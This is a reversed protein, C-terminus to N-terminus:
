TFGGPGCMNGPSCDGGSGPGDGAVTGAFTSFQKDLTKRDCNPCALGKASEGLRQLIEFDHGCERCQYEYIPM